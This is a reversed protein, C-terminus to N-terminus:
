RLNRQDRNQLKARATSRIVNELDNPAEMEDLTRWIKSRDM